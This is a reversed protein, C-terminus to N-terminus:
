CLTRLTYYFVLIVLNNNCFSFVLFYFLKIIGDRYIYHRCAFEFGFVHISIFLYVFCFLM